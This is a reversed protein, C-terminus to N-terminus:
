NELTSHYFRQLLLIFFMGVDDKRYWELFEAAFQLVPGPIYTHHHIQLM